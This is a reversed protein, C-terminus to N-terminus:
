WTSTTKPRPTNVIIEPLVQLGTLFHTFRNLTTMCFEKVRAHQHPNTDVPGRCGSEKPVQQLVRRRHESRLLLWQNVIVAANVVAITMCAGDVLRQRVYTGIM